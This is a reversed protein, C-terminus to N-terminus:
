RLGLLQLGHGGVVVVADADDFEVLADAGNAGDGGGDHAQDGGGGIGVTVEERQIFGDQEGVYEAGDAFSAGLAGQGCRQICDCVVGARHGDDHAYGFARTFGVFGLLGVLDALDDAGDGGVALVGAELGQEAGLGQEANGRADEAGWAEVGQGHGVLQDGDGM